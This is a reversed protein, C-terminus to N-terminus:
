VAYRLIDLYMVYGILSFLLVAGVSSFGLTVARSLPRGMLREVIELVIKGGDLPPIPLINMVGLSLSLMAILGAYSLAGAAAAEQALVSVGVVGTFSKVTGQFTSPDFLRAITQFVLGVYRFSEGLSELVSPRVPVSTPGVGLFGHGDREALTVPFDQEAGARMVTVTVTDGAATANMALQFEDWREVPDGELAVLTDGVRLGAAEAPTGEGISDIRTTQDYYGWVSLVITFTLIAVLLNTIVGMALIAIRKPTSQGRYTVKRAQAALGTADLWHIDGDVTLTYRDDDGASVAKWDALTVLIAEARVQSVGIDAALATADLPGRDRVAVLAEGLFEDEAGPEMGAIRVYGGLPVATVGWDMNKTHLRLSPGPLGVMFEHVKVGFARAALFHGMEHLVVLISFTAIGWLATELAGLSAPM